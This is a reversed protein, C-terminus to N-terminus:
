RFPLSISPTAARSQTTSSSTGAPTCDPFAAPARTIPMRLVTPEPSNRAAPASQTTFFQAAIETTFGSAAPPVMSSISASFRQFNGCDLSDGCKESTSGNVSVFCKAANEAVQLLENYTAEPLAVVCQAKAANQGRVNRPPVRAAAGMKKRRSPCFARSLTHSGMVIPACLPLFHYPTTPVM